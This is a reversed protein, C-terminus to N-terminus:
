PAEPGAPPQKGGGSEAPPITASLSGEREKQGEYQGEVRGGAVVWLLWGFTAAGILFFVVIVSGHNLPTPRWPQMKELIEGAGADHFIGLYLDAQTVEGDIYVRGGNYNDILWGGPIAAINEPDNSTLRIAYTAGPTVDVTEFEFSQRSTYEFSGTDLEVERLTEGLELASGDDPGVVEVLQFKLEGNAEKDPKGLMLDIRSMTDKPARITQILEHGASVPPLQAGSVIQSKDLIPFSTTGLWIAAVAAVLVMALWSPIGKMRSM